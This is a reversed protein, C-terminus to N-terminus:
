LYGSNSTPKIIVKVKAIKRVIINLSGKSTVAKEQRSNNLQQIKRSLINRNASLSCCLSAM